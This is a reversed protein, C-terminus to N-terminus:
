KRAPPRSPVAPQRRAAPPPQRSANNMLDQPDKIQKYGAPVDFLRSDPRALNVNMFHMITTRGNETVEIQVPFGKLDIANWTTAQILVAGKLNKVTSFNKVCVHGDLTERSIPKKEIRQGTLQSDEATLPINAYSKANPYIIYTVKKDPRLVSTIRDMGFQKFMNFTNVMVPESRNIRALKVDLDLRLKSDASAFVSPMRLLEVQKADFVRIDAQATFSPNQGFLKIMASNGGWAPMQAFGTLSSLFVALSGLRFGGGFIIKKM